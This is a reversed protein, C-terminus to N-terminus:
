IRAAERQTAAFHRLAHSIDRVLDTELVDGGTSASLLSRLDRRRVVDVGHIRLPLVALDTGSVVVLPRTDVVLGYNHELLLRLHRANSQAQAVWRSMLEKSFRSRLTMESYKTEVALVGGRGVAVHDVDGLEAFSIGDVVTWARGLGKRLERSTWKEADLADRLRRTGDFQPWLAMVIAAALLLIVVGLPVHLHPFALQAGVAAAAAISGFLLLALWGTSRM